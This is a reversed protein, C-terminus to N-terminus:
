ITVKKRLKLSLERSFRILHIAKKTAETIAMCEAESLLAVTRQKRFSCEWSIAAGALTFTLGTFSKRDIKDGGWDADVYGVLEKGYRKFILGYNLIGQLYRFIRKAEHWREHNHCNNFQSLVNVAHTIDSHTAISLYMILERYPVEENSEEIEINIDKFKGVIPVIPAGITKCNSM